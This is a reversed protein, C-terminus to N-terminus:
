VIKQFGILNQYSAQSGLSQMPLVTMLDPNDEHLAMYNLVVAEALLAPNNSCPTASTNVSGNSEYYGIQQSLPSRLQPQAAPDFVLMFSAATSSNDNRWVFKNRGNGGQPVGDSAVSGDSFVYVCVRTGILRAYELVAGMAQGATFDRQEGTARTGDHYDYGGLEITGAGADGNAVLKMVSATKRFTSQGNIEAASLVSTLNADLLPDVQDPNGFNEVLDTSEIYGCMILDEVIQTETMKQLKLDTIREAARMVLGADVNDLLTVLQGTDVLGRADSPRDVKTPRVEPDIMNAPAMSNGGSDSPDTGILTVLAGQAGAKNIGYMPNHPNNGTDNDSRACFVMGNVFPATLVPDIKDQIGRLFASDAHFPLGLSMDVQAANTPLINAPLGQKQYGGTSLFDDFGGPGGVIVNSGVMNAGGALDFCIFPVMTNSGSVNCSPQASARQAKAVFSGLTPMAVMAAGSLFGQGLFQRRSVPRPHDRHYMPKLIEHGNDDFEIDSM